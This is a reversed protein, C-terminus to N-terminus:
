AFRPKERDSIDGLVIDAMAKYGNNEFSFSSVTGHYKYIRKM